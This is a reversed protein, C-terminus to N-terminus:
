TEPRDAPPLMVWRTYNMGCREVRVLGKEELRQLATLYNDLREPSNQLPSPPVLCPVRGQHRRQHHLFHLYLNRQNITLGKTAAM